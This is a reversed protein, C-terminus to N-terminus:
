LPVWTIYITNGTVTGTVGTVDSPPTLDGYGIGKGGNLSETNYIDSENGALDKFKFYVNFYNNISVPVTLTFVGDGFLQWEATSLGSSSFALKIWIDRELGLPRQIVITFTTQSVASPAEFPLEGPQLDYYPRTRYLIINEYYVISEQETETNIFKVYVSKEGDTTPDSLTWSAIENMGQVVSYTQSVAFDNSNSVQVQDAHEVNLKIKILPKM